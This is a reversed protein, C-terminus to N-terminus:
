IFGMITTKKQIPPFSFFLAPSDASSPSLRSVSAVIWLSSRAACCDSLKLFCNWKVLCGMPLWAPFGIPLAESSRGWEPDYCFSHKLKLTTMQFISYYALFTFYEGETQNVCELLHSGPTLCMHEYASHENLYHRVQTVPCLHSFIVVVGSTSFQLAYTLTSHKQVGVTHLDASRTTITSIDWVQGQSAECSNSWNCRNMEM